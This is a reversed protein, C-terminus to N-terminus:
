KDPLHRSWILTQVIAGLIFAVSLLTPTLFWIINPTQSFNIFFAALSLFLGVLLVPISWWILARAGYENVMKWNEESVFAKRIRIGYWRNRRMRCKLLPISTAVCLLAVFVNSVGVIFLPTNM